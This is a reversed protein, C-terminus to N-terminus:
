LTFRELILRACRNAEDLPQPPLVLAAGKRWTEFGTAWGDALLRDLGHTVRSAHRRPVPLIGVAAGATLAEYVMSVSDETVWVQSAIAMQEGVWGPPTQAVPVVELREAAPLHALFTAPTRRSTTLRWRRQPERAVIEGVRAAAAGDDWDHHTSPGGILLLGRDPAHQAPPTYTINNLVGRTAIVNRATVPADHEPELCLDFWSAPLSPRMFVILRGGRARRAALAALHTQHGAALILDPAPLNAGLPFRATLWPLLMPGTPPVKIIEMAVPRLQQLARVLGRMQNLHGAKGDTLCWVTKPPATAHEADMRM